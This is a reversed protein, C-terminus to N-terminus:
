ILTKVEKVARRSVPLQEPFGKIKVVAGGTAQHAISDIADRKVLTHRHIQIFDQPYHALLYKLSHDVMAEGGEFWIHTYKDDAQAVLVESISVSRTEGALQYQLKPTYLRSMVATLQEIQVPKVLYGAAFVHFAELAFEAHATVFVVKVEPHSTSLLTAVEIGNMGPMDIDLLIITPKCKDVLDLVQTGHEAAGVFEFGGLKEMLRNIRQRALPEDDAVLYKM